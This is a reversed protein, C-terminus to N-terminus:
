GTPAAQVRARLASNVNVLREYGLRFLEVWRACCSDLVTSGSCSAPM